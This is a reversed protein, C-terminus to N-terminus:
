CERGTQHIGRVAADLADIAMNRSIVSGKGRGLVVTGRPGEATRCVSGPVGALANTAINGGANGEASGPGTGSGTCSGTYFAVVRNGVRVDDAAPASLNYVGQNGDFLGGLFTIEVTLPTGSGVSRGEITLTTFYMEPGDLSDGLRVVDSGTIEGHVASAKLETLMRFLTARDARAPDITGPPAPTTTVHNPFRTRRM